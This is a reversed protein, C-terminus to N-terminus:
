MINLIQKSLHKFVAWVFQVTLLFGVMITLFGLFSIHESGIPRIYDSLTSFGGEKEIWTGTEAALITYVTDIISQIMDSQGAKVCDAAIASSITLFSIIKGWTIDNHKFLNKGVNEIIIPAVEPEPITVNCFIRPHLRELELSMRNIIVLIHHMQRVTAHPLVNITMSVKRSMLGNARLKCRIFQTSICQIQSSIDDSLGTWKKLSKDKHKWGNQHSQTTMHNVFM